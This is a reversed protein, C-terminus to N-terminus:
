ESTDFMNEFFNGSKKDNKEENYSVSDNILEWKQDSGDLQVSTITIQESATVEFSFLVEGSVQACVAGEEKDVTTLQLTIQEPFSETVFVNKELTKCMNSITVAGTYKHTGDSYQHHITIPSVEPVIVEVESEVAKVEDLADKNGRVSELSHATESTLTLAQEFHAKAGYYDKLVMAIEGRLLHASANKIQNNAKEGEEFMQGDQLLLLRRVVGIEEKIQTRMREVEAGVEGYEDEVDVETGVNEEKDIEEDPFIEVSFLNTVKLLEEVNQLSASAKRYKGYAEGLNNELLAQAGQQMLEEGFVIQEQVQQALQSETDLGAHLEKVKSLLKLARAQARYSARVRLNASDANKENEFKVVKGQEQSNEPITVESEDIAIKEEVDNRIKEVEMSVTRVQEVLGRGEEEADEQEVILRALVAEHAELSDEFVSSMEAALVPDTEEAVLVQEVMAETHEAFLKSVTEQKESDLRGEAALQSAEVLRRGAREQEWVIRSETSSIFVTKIEENVNVKVPYLLDGPLADGAAFSVGFTSGTVLLAIMLAGSFHHAHFYPFLFAYDEKRSVASSYRIPKYEMYEVLRERMLFKDEEALSVHKTVENFQEFINKM